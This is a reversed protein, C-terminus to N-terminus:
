FDCATNGEETEKMDIMVRKYAMTQARAGRVPLISRIKRLVKDRRNSNICIYLLLLALFAAALLLLIIMLFSSHKSSKSGSCVLPTSVGLLVHCHSLGRFYMSEEGTESCTYEVIARWTKDASDECRTNSTIIQEASDARAFIELEDFSGGFRTVRNNRQDKFCVLNGGCRRDEIKDDLLAGCKALHITYPASEVSYQSSKLQSLDVYSETVPSTYRCTHSVVPRSSSNCAVFSSWTFKYTCDSDGLFVPSGLSNGCEFLIETRAARESCPLESGGSYSLSIESKNAGTGQIRTEILGLSQSRLLSKESLCAISNETCGQLTSDIHVGRCPNLYFTRDDDDVAWNSDRRALPAFDYVVGGLKFVCEKPTFQCVKQSCLSFFYVCEDESVSLVKMEKNESCCMVLIKSSKGNPCDSSVAGETYSIQVEGKEQALETTATSAKGLSLTQISVTQGNFLSCVAVDPGCTDVQGCVNALIQVNGNTGKVTTQYYDRSVTLATLDYLFQTDPDSIACGQVPEPDPSVCVRDTYWTVRYQCNAEEVLYPISPYDRRCLFTIRTSYEGGAPCPDGGSYLLEPNGDEALHLAGSIRGINTSSPGSNPTFCAAAKGTCQVIDSSKLSHCVSLYIYGPPDLTIQNSVLYQPSHSLSSLDIVHGDKVVECSTIDQQCVLPTPFKLRTECETTGVFTPSEDGERDCTFDIVTRRPVSIGNEQMCVDGNLYTLSTISRTGTRTISTDSEFLGLSVRESGTALCVATDRKCQSDALKDCVAVSYTDSTGPSNISYTGKLSSLDLVVEGSESDRITCSDSVERDKCAFKTRWLFNYVCSSNSLYEPSGVNDETDCLFTIVSMYPLGSDPCLDAGKYKLKLSSDEYVLTASSVEGLSVGHGVGHRMCVAANSSCPSPSNIGRCANITFTFNNHTTYYNGRTLALGSIDYGAIECQSLVEKDCPLGSFAFAEYVCHSVEKIQDFEVEVDSLSHDCVMKITTERIDGRSCVDGNMYNLTIVGNSYTLTTNVHGNNKHTDTVTSGQCSGATSVENCPSPLPSCFSYTYTHEDVTATYARNSLRWLDYTVDTVPNIVTCNTGIAFAAPCAHLTRWEVTVECTEENASITPLSESQPECTFIINTTWRREGDKGCEDGHYYSLLIRGDDMVTPEGSVRGVSVKTNGSDQIYCIASNDGCVSSVGCVNLSYVRNNSDRVTWDTNRRLVSLDYERLSSDIVRCTPELPPCAAAVEWEFHYVCAESDRNLYRPVGTRVNRNCLLAIETSKYQVGDRTTMCRDGGTYLLTFVNNELSLTTTAADGLSLYNGNVIECSASDRNDPGCGEALAGCVHVKFNSHVNAFQYDERLYSFDYTIGTEPHTITCNHSTVTEQICGYPSAVEVIYLCLEDNFFASQIVSESQKACSYEVRTSAQKSRDLCVRGGNSYMEYIIGDEIKLDSAARGLNLAVKVGDKEVVGCVGATHDCGETGSEVQGCSRVYLATRTGNLLGAWQMSGAEYLPSLDFSHTGNNVACEMPYMPCAAPDKWIVYYTCNNLKIAEVSKKTPDSECEFAVLTRYTMEGGCDQGSMGIGLQRDVFQLKDSSYGMMSTYGLVTSDSRCSSVGPRGCTSDPLSGCIQLSLSTGDHLDLTLPQTAMSSVDFTLGTVPDQIRCQTGVISHSPCAYATEWVALYNCPDDSLIVPPSELMRQRCTLEVTFSTPSSECEGAGEYTLEISKDANIKFHETLSAIQTYKTDGQETVEKRCLSSDPCPTMHGCISMLLEENRSLKPGREPIWPDSRHGLDTLDFLEGDTGYKACTNGQPTPCAYKTRWIFSYFCYFTETIVPAGEGANKDCVFLIKTSRVQGKSCQSGGNYLMTLGTDDWVLNGEHYSGMSWARPSATDTICGSAANGSCGDPINGCVRLAYRHNDKDAYYDKGALPSLDYNTGRAQLKCGVDHIPTVPCAHATRWVINYTCVQDLYILIPPTEQHPTCALVIITTLTPCSQSQQRTLYSLVVGGDQSSVHPGHTVDGINKLKGTADKYCAGGGACSNDGTVPGCLSFYISVSSNAIPIHYNNGALDGLDILERQQNYAYCPVTDATQVNRCAALTEWILVVHSDKLLQVEPRGLSNGCLLTVHTTVLDRTLTVNIYDEQAEASSVNGLLTIQGDGSAYCASDGQCSAASGCLNIHLATQNYVTIFDLNLASIDYDDPQGSIAPCDGLVGPLVLFRILLVLYGVNSM